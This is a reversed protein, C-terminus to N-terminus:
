CPQEQAFVELASRCADKPRINVGVQFPTAMSAEKDLGNGSSKGKM